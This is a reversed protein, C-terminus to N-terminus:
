WLRLAQYRKIPYPCGRREREKHCSDPGQCLSSLKVVVSQLAQRQHVNGRRDSDNYTNNNHLPLHTLNGKQIFNDKSGYQLGAEGMLKYKGEWKGYPVEMVDSTDCQAGSYKGCFFKAMQHRVVGDRDNGKPKILQQAVADMGIQCNGFDKIEGMIVVHHFDQKLLFIYSKGVELPMGKAAKQAIKYNEVM